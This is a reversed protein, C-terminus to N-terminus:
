LPSVRSRKPNAAPKESGARDWYVEKLSFLEGTPYNVYGKLIAPMVAVTDRTYLSIYPLDDRFIEQARLYLPRRAEPDTLRAAADILRDFEPNQYYGRNQGRPPVNDSQLILAYINPDIAGFRNLSFIQFNGHQVDSYFTGFEMSRIEIGVGIEALMRQIIQAQLVYEETTSTKYTLTFRVGPGDGDPDPHGAEDLLEEAREPDYLYPELHENRAWLGPPLVTETVTGLGRWLTAVLRERDIGHALARRVRVDSLVPDRLNLGLYAYVASPDEAVRYAPHARFRPILDPPLDNIVLQVTGKMLELARVTSDPIERIVVKELHPAGAWHDEFRALTVTEPTKGVFRFPGTGVPHEGMAEPLAGAPVIGQAPTLDVLFSGFPEDLVFDVTHEDLARIARVRRFAGAKATAVTGDTISGFTWVVDDATLRSGDHFRVGRRLHFRWRRGGDLVEWSKALDPILNGRPDKTVLGNFVLQAIKGSAADTGVRPDLHIPANAQALVLVNEEPWEPEFTLTCGTGGAVLLGALSGALLSSRLWSGANSTAHRAAEAIM